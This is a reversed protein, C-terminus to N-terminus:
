KKDWAGNAKLKYGDITTNSAMVGNPRFYYWEGGIKAWGTVMSGDTDLYFWKGNDNLWGSQMVGTNKDFYYFQGNHKYWGTAKNGNKLVMYWKENIQKFEAGSVATDKEIDRYVVSSDKYNKEGESGKYGYVTVNPCNKFVDSGISEVSEPITITKLNDCYEFARDGISTLKNSLEVSELSDCDWFANHFIKKINNDMKVNKVYDNNSFASGAIWEIDEGKITRPITVNEMTGKYKSIYYVRENDVTNYSINFDNEGTAAMVPACQFVTMAAMTSAFVVNKIKNM